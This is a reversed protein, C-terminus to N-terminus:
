IPRQFNVRGTIISYGGSDVYLKAGKNRIRKSYDIMKQKRVSQPAPNNLGFRKTNMAEYLSVLSNGTIDVSMDDIFHDSIAVNVFQM